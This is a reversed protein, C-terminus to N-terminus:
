SRAIATSGCHEKAYLQMVGIKAETMIYGEGEIDRVECPM